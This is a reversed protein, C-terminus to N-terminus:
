TLLCALGAGAGPMPFALAGAAELPGVHGTARRRTRLQSSGHVKKPRQQCAHDVRGGGGSSRLELGEEAADGGALGEM